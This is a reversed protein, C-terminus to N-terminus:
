NKSLHNGFDILEVDFILTSGAPIGPLENDGYAMNSPVYLRIKGGKNVLQLGEQFGAIVGELNFTIPEGRKVSSDFIVGNTLQGTYHVLVWDNSKPKEGTGEQTITYYLGTNTKLVGEKADLQAFFNDQETKNNQIMFELEKEHEKSYANAKLQLFEHFGNTSICEPAPKGEAGSKFGNFVNQMEAESLGLQRVQSQVSLAWGLGELYDQSSYEEAFMSPLQLLILCATLKHILKM